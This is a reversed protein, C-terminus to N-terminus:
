SPPRISLVRFDDPLEGNLRVIYLDAVLLVREFHIAMFM